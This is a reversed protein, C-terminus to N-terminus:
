WVHKSALSFFLFAVLHKKLRCLFEWSTGRLTEFYLSSSFFWMELGEQAERKLVTANFDDKIHLSVRYIFCRKFSFLFFFRKSRSYKLVYLLQSPSMKLVYHRNLALGWWLCSDFWGWSLKILAYRGGNQAESYTEPLLHSQVKFEAPLSRCRGASLRAPRGSTQNLPVNVKQLSWPASLYARVQCGALRLKRM